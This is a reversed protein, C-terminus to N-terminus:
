YVISGTMQAYREFPPLGGRAIETGWGSVWPSFTDHLLEGRSVRAANTMAKVPPTRM